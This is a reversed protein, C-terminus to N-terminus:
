TLFSVHIEITMCQLSQNRRLKTPSSTNMLSGISDQIEEDYVSLDDEQMKSYKMDIDDLSIGRRDTSYTSASTNSASSPPPPPPPPPTPQSIICPAFTSVLNSLIMGNRDSLMSVTQIHLLMKRLTNYHIPYNQKLDVLLGRYYQILKEATINSDVTSRLWADYNQRTGLLPTDLQRLFRKLGSAVDHESYNERTLSNNFPDELFENLLQKIKTEQGAQRYIGSFLSMAMLM